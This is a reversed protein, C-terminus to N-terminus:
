QVVLGFDNKPYLLEHQPNVALSIEPPYVALEGVFSTLTIAGVAANDEM